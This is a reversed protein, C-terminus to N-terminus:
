KLSINKKTAHSDLFVGFNFWFDWLPDIKMINAVRLQEITMDALIQYLKEKM